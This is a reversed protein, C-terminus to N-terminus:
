ATPLAVLFYLAMFLTICPVAIAMQTLLIMAMAQAQEV